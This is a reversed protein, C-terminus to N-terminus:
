DTKLLKANKEKKREAAEIKEVKVIYLVTELIITLIGIVLSLILCQIDPLQFFYKGLYYGMAFGLFMLSIFSTGFALSEHYQQMDQRTEGEGYESMGVM